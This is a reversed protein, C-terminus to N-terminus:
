RREVVFRAAGQAFGNQTIRVLYSGASLRSVDLWMSGTTTPRESLLIRGSLDLVEVRDVTVLGEPLEVFLRDTAPNPLLMPAFQAALDSVGSPSCPNRSGDLVTVGSNLPDLWVKLKENAPNPNSTWHYSMRGYFDPQLQGGPVVSNCYSSGGTLTGVIRGNPDFLPSGSSGGETVGHGNPTGTWFVRWHSAQPAGLSIAQLTTTYTSIKKEDGDPHHISVGSSSASTSTNWGNWYPDFSAPVPDAEVLLFDSGNDGGGDNSDALRTCGTLVKNLFAPGLDCGTREYQFYFKWQNFDSNSATIGCHLATLIYPACDQATNNVLSGSCYGVSGSDVVRIRVVGDAEDQWDDGEPSCIIDVECDQAKQGGLDRYAHAVGSVRFPRELATGAPHHYELICSGGPVQETSFVGFRSGHSPVYGGVVHEGTPSYAYLRAGEPLRFEDFFVELALAGPSTIRARWVRDGGALETWLGDTLPDLAIPLIRGYMPVMGDLERQEDELAVAVEDLGATVAEPVLSRDLGLVLGAPPAKDLVQAGLHMGGTLAVLTMLSNLKMM